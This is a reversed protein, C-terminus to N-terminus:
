IEPATGYQVTSYDVTIHSVSFCLHITCTTGQYARATPETPQQLILPEAGKVKPPYTLSPRVALISRLALPYAPEDCVSVGCLRVQIKLREAFCEVVRAHKQGAEKNIGHRQQKQQCSAGLCMSKLAPALVVSSPSLLLLLLLLAVTNLFVDFAGVIFVVNGAQANCNNRDPLLPEQKTPLGQRHQLSERFLHCCRTRSRIFLHVIQCTMLLTNNFDNLKEILACPTLARMM